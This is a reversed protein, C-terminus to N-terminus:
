SWFLNNATNVSDHEQQNFGRSKLRNSVFDVQKYLFGFDFRNDVAALFTSHKTYFIRPGASRWHELRGGTDGCLLEVYTSVLPAPLFILASFSDFIVIVLAIFLIEIHARM